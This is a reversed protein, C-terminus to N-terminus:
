KHLARKCVDAAGDGIQWSREREVSKRKHFLGIKTKASMWLAM